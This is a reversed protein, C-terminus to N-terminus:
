VAGEAVSQLMWWTLILVVLPGKNWCNDSEKVGGRDKKSILLKKGVSVM